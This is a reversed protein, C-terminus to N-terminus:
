IIRTGDLHLLLCTQPLTFRESLLSHSRSSASFTVALAGASSHLLLVVLSQRHLTVRVRNNSRVYGDAGIM